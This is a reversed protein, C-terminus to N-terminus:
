EETAAGQPAGPAEPIGSAGRDQLRRSRRAARVSAFAVAAVIVALAAMSIGLVVRYERRARAVIERHPASVALGLFRDSSRSDFRFKVLSFSRREGRGSSEAQGDNALTGPGFFQMLEPYVHQIRYREEATRPLGLEFGFIAKADDPNRLFWGERDTIYLRRSTSGDSTEYGSALLRFLPRLDLNIVVVGSARGEGDRYVPVAARIVPIRRPDIEGGEKNLEIRSLYVEGRPLEVARVFYDHKAKQPLEGTTRVSFPRPEPDRASLEPAAAPDREVRVIERGYEDGGPSGDAGILRAQFYQFYNGRHDLFGAFVDALRSKATDETPGDADRRARLITAVHDQNALYMADQRLTDILALTRGSERQAENALISVQRDVSVSRQWLLNGVIFVSVAVATTLTITFVRNRRGWRRLRQARSERHASVPEDGLWRQIDAALDTAKAYRGSREKSMAKACISDLAPALKAKLDGAHPTEATSIKHIVDQASDGRHPARGTLCDFLIGGLGYVDTRVDVVVNHGAAQEPAMYAPTGLVGGDLTEELNAAESVTIPGTDPETSDILKALGWDLVVVEGFAGLVINAPKLDRHIVGRSHAYGVANCVSVFTTLLQRLALRDPGQEGLRRHLEDIKDRLTEGRELRMTYFPEGQKPHWGLHYVPVINPHELQGTIQAERLFRRVAAPSDSFEPRLEKLAVERNLNADRALYIRGSAGEAHPSLKDYLSRTTDPPGPPDVTVQGAAPPLLSLTERVGPEDCARLAHRVDVDALAALTRHVDGQREVVAAEVAKRVEQRQKPSLDGRRLLLEALSSDRRAAWETCADTLQTSDIYGLQLAQVGFLLNHNTEMSEIRDSEVGAPCGVLPCRCSGGVPEPSGPFLDAILHVAGSTDVGGEFAEISGDDSVADAGDPTGGPGLITRKPASEPLSAVMRFCSPVGYPGPGRVGTGPNGPSHPFIETGM